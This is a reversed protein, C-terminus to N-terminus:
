KKHPNCVALKGGCYAAACVPLELSAFVGGDVVFEAIEDANAAKIEYKEASMTNTEYTSIYECTNDALDFERVETGNDRVIGLYGKTDTVIGAIRPTHYDDHEYEMESLVSGLAEFPSAGAELKEFIPDTHSGNSVVIGNKSVRVCNYAIYPNRKMDEPDLPQVAIGEDTIATIRNPSSRSSVRYGVFPKDTKGVAVIRGVYM